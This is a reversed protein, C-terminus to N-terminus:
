RQAAAYGAAVGDKGRACDVFSLDGLDFRILVDTKKLLDIQQKVNQRILTTLM